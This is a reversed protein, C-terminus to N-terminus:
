EPGEMHFMVSYVTTEFVSYDSVEGDIAMFEIFAAQQKHRPTYSVTQVGNTRGPQFSEIKNFNADYFTIVIDGAENKLETVFETCYEMDIIKPLKYILYGYISEYRISVATSNIRQCVARESDDYELEDMAFRVEGTSQNVVWGEPLETETEPLKWYEDEMYFNIAYVTADCDTYADAGSRNLLLSIGGVRTDLAPDLFFEEVGNTTYNYFTGYEHFTEDYLRVTLDGEECKMVLGIGTCYRLNVPEPLRLMLEGENQELELYVSGDVQYRCRMGQHQEETLDTMEYSIHPTEPNISMFDVYYVTTVFESYDELDNDNALFGIYAVKGEYKTSFVVDKTEEMKDIYFTEVVTCTEDYLNVAIDGVQTKVRVAMETCYNMDIIDPLEYIIIDFIQKFQISVSGSDNLRYAVNYSEVCELDSILYGNKETRKGVIRKSGDTDGDPEPVTEQYDDEMYFNIAYVTATCGSFDEGEPVDIMLGIGEVMAGSFILYLKEEVGNTRYKRYGEVFDFEKDYTHLEIEGEESKMVLGIGTCYRMDVKEPLRLKLKGRLEKYAIIVSGDEQYFFGELGYYDEKTLEAMTYSIKPTDPNILMFEVFYLTAVFDSDDELEPNNAMLGVYEVKGKYSPSFLVEKTEEAKNIDFCEVAIGNEDYLICTLNGMQTCVKVMTDVCYNMDIVDPLEFVICGNNKEFRLSVSGNDHRKYSVGDSEVYDLRNITYGESQTRAGLTQKSEKDLLSTQVNKIPLELMQAPTVTATIEPVPTPILTPTIEPVDTATPVTLPEEAITPTINTVENEVGKDGFMLLGGIGLLALLTVCAALPCFIKRGYKAKRLCRLLDKKLEAVNKYRNEPDFSTCKDVLHKWEKAFSAEKSIKVESFVVGVSYIDSRLDTQSYGFQEPAAYEITGLLRTDSTNKETKYQRAADFDIIKLVGNNDIIINSPKIDRHIVPPVCQHLVELADCLQLMLELKQIESLAEEKLYVELTRGAIYQEVVCLLNGQEEVHYITPIHENKLTAIKRYIEPNAESLRKVVVPEDLGDVAAFLVEVRESQKFVQITKYNMYDM